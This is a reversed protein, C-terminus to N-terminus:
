SGIQQLWLNSVREAAERYGYEDGNKAATLANFLETNINYILYILQNVNDYEEEHKYMEELIINLRLYINQANTYDREFLASIAKPILEVAELIAKQCKPSVNAIIDEIKIKSKEDIVTEVQYDYTPEQYYDVSQQSTPQQEKQQSQQSDRLLQSVQPKFRIKGFKFHKQVLDTADTFGDQNYVLGTKLINSYKKEFEETFNTIIREYIPKAQEVVIVAYGYDGPKIIVVQNGVDVTEIHRKSKGETGSLEDLIGKIGTMAGSFLLDDKNARSSKQVFVCPIGNLIYSVSLINEQWNANQIVRRIGLTLFLSLIFFLVIAGIFYYLNYGQSLWGAAQPPILNLTYTEENTNGAADTIIFKFQYSGFELDNTDVIATFLGDTDTNGPSPTMIILDNYGPGTIELIVSNIKVADEINIFVTFNNESPNNSKSVSITSSSWSNTGFSPFGNITPASTDIYITILQIAEQDYIDIAVINLIHTGSPIQYSSQNINITKVFPSTYIGNAFNYCEQDVTDMFLSLRKIGLGTDLISLDFTFNGTQTYISESINFEIQPLAYIICTFL